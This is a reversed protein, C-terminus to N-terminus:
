GSRTVGACVIGECFLRRSSSSLSALRHVDGLLCARWSYGRVGKRGEQSLEMADDVTRSYIVWHPKHLCVSATWCGGM